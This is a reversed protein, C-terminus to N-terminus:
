KVRRNPVLGEKRLGDLLHREESARREMGAVIRRFEPRRRISDFSPDLHLIMWHKMMLSSDREAAKLTEIAGDGDGLMSLAAARAVRTWMAGRKYDRVARDDESLVRRLLRRAQEDKGELSLMDAVGILAARMDFLEPFVPEDDSSWRLDAIQELAARAAPLEGSVR